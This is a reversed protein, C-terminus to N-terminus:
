WKINTNGFPLSMEYHGDTKKISKHVIDIPVSPRKDFDINFYKQVLQELWSDEERDQIAFVEARNASIGRVDTDRV